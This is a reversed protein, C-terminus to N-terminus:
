RARSRAKAVLARARALANGSWAIRSVETALFSCQERRYQAASIKNGLDDVEVQAPLRATLIQNLKAEYAEITKAV